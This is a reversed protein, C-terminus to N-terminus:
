HFYIHAPPSRAPLRIQAAGQTDNPSKCITSFEIRECVQSSRRWGGARPGKIKPASCRALLLLPRAPRASALRQRPKSTRAIQLALPPRARLGSRSRRAGITQALRCSCTASHSCSCSVCACVCACVRSNTRLRVARAVPTTSTFGIPPCRSEAGPRRRRAAGRERACM